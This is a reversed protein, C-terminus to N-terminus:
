LGDRERRSPGPPTHYFALSFLNNEPPIIMARARRPFIIRYRDTTMIAKNRHCLPARARGGGESAARCCSSAFSSCASKRRSSPADRRSFPSTTPARSRKRRDRARNGSPAKSSRIWFSASSSSAPPGPAPVDGGGMGVWGVWGGMGGRGVRPSTTRCFVREWSPPVNTTAPFREMARSGPAREPSTGKERRGARTAGRGRTPPGGNGRSPAQSTSEPPAEKEEGARIEKSRGRSARLSSTSNTRGTKERLPIM